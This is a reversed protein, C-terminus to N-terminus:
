TGAHCEAATSRAQAVASPDNLTAVYGEYDNFAAQAEACRSHNALLNARGYIAVSRGWTDAPSFKSEATAYEKIAEDVRGLDGLAVARDYHGWPNSADAAIAQDALELAQSDEGRILREASSSALSKSQANGSDPAMKGAAHAAGLPLAGLVLAGVM